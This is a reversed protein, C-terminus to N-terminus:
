ERGSFRLYFLIAIAIISTGALIILVISVPTLSPKFIDIILAIIEVVSFVTFLLAITNLAEERREKQRNYLDNLLEEILILKEQLKDYMEATLWRKNLEDLLIRKETDFTIKVGRYYDLIRNLANNFERIEYIAKKIQRPKLKGFFEHFSATTVDVLDALIDLNQWNAQAIEILRVYEHAPTKTQSFGDEDGSELILSLGWGFYIYRNDYISLDKVDMRKSPTLLFQFPLGPNELKFLEKDQIRYLRHTWPIFYKSKDVDDIRPFFDFEYTPIELEKIARTYHEALQYSFDQFYERFLDNIKESVDDLETIELGFDKTLIVNASCIAIGFEHFYFNIDNFVLAKEEFHNEIAEEICCGEKDKDENVLKAMIFSNGKGPPAFVGKSLKFEESEEVVWIIQNNTKKFFIPKENLKKIIKERITDIGQFRIEDRNLYLFTSFPSFIYVTIEELKIEDM